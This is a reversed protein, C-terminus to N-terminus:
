SPHECYVSGSRFNVIDRLKEDRIGTQTTHLPLRLKWDTEGDLQDTRIFVSKSKETTFLLVMDAPARENSKVKVLDGVKISDSRCDVIMGKNMDIKEYISANLELDRQRRKYDDYFEKIMTVCLVFSLPAVYSILFGVRLAEIIQSLAVLLFFLNFFFKFQNYLVLPVFTYWTYKTNTVANGPFRNRKWRREQTFQIHRLQGLASDPINIQSSDFTGSLEVEDIHERYEM